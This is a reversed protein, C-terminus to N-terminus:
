KTEPSSSHSKPSFKELHNLWRKIEGAVMDPATSGVSRFSTLTNKIGLKKGAITILQPHAAKLTAAPLEALTLGEEEAVRVLQGVITHASRMPCGVEILAEMLTTADLFGHDLRAEIHSRRLKSGATMLTMLEVSALVTDYAEFLAPKDEQLDRNYALPLGKLLVLLNQLSGIVRGSRARILELVDPNKKHPMISSGTCLEDPLDLFGYEQSSWIIWEEAIGSLHTAILSMAFVSEAVFDRDSVADLSNRCIGDFGLALAVAHRDIPLSTGALAAAGLPLQNVRQRADRLRQIDREFREVHALYYHAALVPQARQLHTYGPLVTDGARQAADVLASQLNFLGLTLTDIAERVWLRLSTAVQDNRSRATHLKRGTDGLREILASEIHMHIDELSDSLELRNAAFDEAIADLGTAIATAEEISIIGVSGLMHAHAKSAAIDHQWLRIDTKISATFAEVASHTSQKFRGSWPKQELQEM